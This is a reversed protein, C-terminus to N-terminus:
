ITRRYHLVKKGNNYSKLINNKKIFINKNEIQKLLFAATESQMIM